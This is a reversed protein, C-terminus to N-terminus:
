DARQLAYNKRCGSSASTGRLILRWGLYRVLVRVVAADGAAQLGQALEEKTVQFPNQANSPPLQYTEKRVISRDRMRKFILAQLIEGQEKALILNGEGFLELVLKLIGERAKFEFTVVREFGYQEM